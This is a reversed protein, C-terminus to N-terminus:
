NTLNALMLAVAGIQAGPHPMHSVCQGTSGDRFVYSISVSSLREEEAMALVTTLADVVDEGLREPHIAYLKAKPKRPM